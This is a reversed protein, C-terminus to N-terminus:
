ASCLTDMPRPSTLVLGRRKSLAESSSFRPVRPKQRESDYKDEFVWGVGDFPGDALTALMPQLRKPLTSTRGM